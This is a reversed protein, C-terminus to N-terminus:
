YVIPATGFFVGHFGVSDFAQLHSSGLSMVELMGFLKEKMTNMLSRAKKGDTLKEKLLVSFIM